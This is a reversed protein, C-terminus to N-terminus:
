EEEEDKINEACDSCYHEGDHCLIDEHSDFIKLCNDCSFLDDDCESCWKSSREETTANTEM